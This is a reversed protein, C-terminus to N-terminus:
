WHYRQCVRPRRPNDRLTHSPTPVGSSPPEARVRGNVIAASQPGLPPAIRDGGLGRTELFQDVGDPGGVAFGTILGKAPEKMPGFARIKEEMPRCGDLLSQAAAHLRKLADRMLPCWCRVVVFHDERLAQVLKIEQSIGGVVNGEQDVEFIRGNELLDIHHESDQPRPFTRPAQIIRQSIDDVFSDLGPVQASVKSRESLRGPGACSQGCVALRRVPDLFSTFLAETVLPILIVATMIMGKQFFMVRSRCIARRTIMITATDYTRCGIASQM